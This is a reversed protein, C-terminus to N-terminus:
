EYVRAALLAAAFLRWSSDEPDLTQDVNRVYGPLNFVFGRLAGLYDGLTQNEWTGGHGRLDGVLTGLFAVFQERSEPAPMMELGADSNGGSQFDARGVDEKMVVIGCRIEVGADPDVLVEGEGDADRRISLSCNEWHIPSKISRCTVCVAQLSEDQLLGITLRGLSPTYKWIRANAGDWKRLLSNRRELEVDVESDNM